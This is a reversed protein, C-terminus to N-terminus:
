QHGGEEPEPLLLKIHLPPIVIAAVEMPEDPPGATLKLVSDPPREFLRRLAQQEAMPILVESTPLKQFEDRGLNRRRVPVAAAAVPPTAPPVAPTGGHATVIRPPLQEVVPQRQLMVVLLVVGMAVIAAAVAFAHVHGGGSPEDAVRRRLRAVFEPSPEVAFADSLASDLEADSLPREEVM